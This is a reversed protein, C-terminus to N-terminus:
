IFTYLVEQDLNYSDLVCLGSIDAKQIFTM